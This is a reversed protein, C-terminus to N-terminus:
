EDRKNLIRCTYSALSWREPINLQSREGHQCDIRAAARSRHWSLNVHGSSKFPDHLKYRSIESLLMM